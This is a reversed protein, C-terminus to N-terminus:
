LVIHRVDPNDIELWDTTISIFGELKGTTYFIPAIQGNCTNLIGFQSLTKEVDRVTENASSVINVGEPLQEQIQDHLIPYHTCGLIATDFDIHVLPNLSKKIIPSIDLSKYQGSEVLPVFEPCALQFTKTYGSIASIANEYAGSKVTGVTGLVVIRGTSSVRVAARAGPDIVGLVPFEFQNRLDELAVATATNCAVVLMKIGMKSLALAMEMTFKKVEDVSRPGYPCRADDGIYIIKETPLQRLMEKVVTLGGVGSDIVGIPADNSIKM